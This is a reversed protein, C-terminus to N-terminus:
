MTKPYRDKNVRLKRYLISKEVCKEFMHFKTTDYTCLKLYKKNIFNITYAQFQFKVKKDITAYMLPQCAKSNM